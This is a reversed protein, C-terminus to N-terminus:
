VSQKNIDTYFFLTKINNTLENIKHIDEPIVIVVNNNAITVELNKISRENLIQNILQAANNYTKIIVSEGSVDINLILNKIWNTLELPKNHIVYYTDKNEDLIKVTNLKKLIRSINSQTTNFGKRHLIETLELQTKIRNNQILNKIIYELKM